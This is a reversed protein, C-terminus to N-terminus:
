KIHLSWKLLSWVFFSRMLHDSIKFFNKFKSFLFINQLFINEISDFDIQLTLLTPSWISDPGLYTLNYVLHVDVVLDVGVDLTIVQWHWDIALVIKM